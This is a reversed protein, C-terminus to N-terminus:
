FMRAVIVGDIVTVYCSMNAVRCFDVVSEMHYFETKEYRESAPYLMIGDNDYRVEIETEKTTQGFFKTFYEALKKYDKKVSAM